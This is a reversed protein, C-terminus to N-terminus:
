EEGGLFSFDDVQDLYIKDKEKYFCLDKFPCYKCSVNKNQYIKPEIKFNAKLIEDKRNIIINETYKILKYLTEEDLYKTYAGFGKDASYKMSKILLSDEFSSDFEKLVDINDTSYGMLLYRDKLDKEINKSWSPYPFLINQYYVGTFIPNDFLNAKELLYLYIPLQMHLGYKLPEINTDIKGSKYDIISFYTDSVDERFLIKDVYGIFKVAIDESLDVELEKEYYADKYSCLQDQKKIVELFDLLEEKVRDLLLVEKVSLDRSSLIRQYEKEFQFDENKYLSLIEHFLSGIFAPFTDEYEELKLVNKVYYKFPCENYANLSTYSLKLPYALKEIYEDYNIKNFSNEYSQYGIDYNNLLLSLKKDKKGFFNYIDLKKGLRIKNYINSYCYDDQYDTIVKFNYDDILTSPSYSNFSNYLSYSITLNKISSLLYLILKENRSNLYTIDYRDLEKKDLDSLYGIDKVVKPITDANFGLFFIYEDDAFSTEYLDRVSVAPNFNTESFYTTKLLSILLEKYAITESDFESISGLVQNLKKGIENDIPIPTNKDNLYDRVIKTGYISENEKLNLPIHYYSFLKKLTYHYDSSVNTLFIKNPSIGNKILKIIELCVFNVEEEMSLFQYVSNTYNVNSKFPEIGLVKEEYSDFEHYNIVQIEKNNIYKKFSPNIYLLKQDLLEKKLSQLFNLKSNDYSKDLDIDYMERIYEHCVDVPYGYKSILYYIAKNDYSFYYAQFFEEKTMYKVFSLEKKKAEEKLLKIKEDYSCIIIKEKQM